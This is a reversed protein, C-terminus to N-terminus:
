PSAWQHFLLAEGHFRFSFLIERLKGSLDRATPIRDYKNKSLLNLILSNCEESLDPNLELPPTPEQNIVMHSTASYNKGHFPVRGTLCQYMVAGLSYLDSREDLADGKSQEPSMFEPTGLVNGGDMINNGYKFGTMITINKENGHFVQFAKIQSLYYLPISLKSLLAGQLIHSGQGIGQIMNM